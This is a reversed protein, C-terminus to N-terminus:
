SGGPHLSDAALSRIANLAVEVAVAADEPSADEAPHHSIGDRCPVFLMVSPVRDAICMTDHGAGSTMTMFPEGSRGAAAELAGVMVPDMPTPVAHQRREHEVRMGRREAADQAFAVIENPLREFVDPDISRVDVSFRVREAITDILGPCVDMEGVTAVAGKGAERALRELELICEAAATTPDHRLNMPTAGAHDGVGQVTVDEWHAGAIANVIGLRNRTDQLVRGQEIHPEIWGVLDDLLHVCERWREPHCGADAAHEWFSRGDDVARLTERLDEETIRQAVIRSGLLGVNFGSGEEELFSVLMLPLDLGLEENLRCVELAIVVGLTGDWKGGNRNSDCHSGIGYLAYGAPRNRAVLNAVPDREVEFGLRQLEGTFYRLANEYVDTYAYRSIAESSLTYGPGSLKEVHAAIRAASDERDIAVYSVSM